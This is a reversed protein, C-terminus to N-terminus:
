NHDLITRKIGFGIKYPTGNPNPQYEWLIYEQFILGIGKAYQSKYLSRSAFSTPTTVPVNLSEDIGQVTAVDSYTKGNLTVMEGIESYTFDWDAIDDDNGFLYQAGYADTAIYRGGKWSTGTRVPTIVPIFRLNDDVVEVAGTTPTIFYSGLSRWPTIGASDRIYRYVRYSPRGLGDTIAADVVDKQQYVHREEARGQQTFVTSDLRYTIFKGVQSPLYSDSLVPEFDDTKETCATFFLTVSLALAVPFIKKM